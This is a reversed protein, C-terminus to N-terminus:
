GCVAILVYSGIGCDCMFTFIQMENVLAMSWARCGVLSRTVYSRLYALPGRGAKLIYFSLPKM